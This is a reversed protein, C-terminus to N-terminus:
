SKRALWALGFGQNPILKDLRFELTSVTQRLTELSHREDLHYELRILRIKRFTDPDQFIDWEAGECDLKLLDLDNGLKSVADALSVITVKGNQTQRTQALRSEGVDAMVAFGAKSGVGASFPIAGVPALNKALHPYIRPNPEYAHITAFPLYHAAMLSFLGCNAGVDLVSKIDSGLERLGYDDDLVLNIFDAGLGAEDPASFPLVRRGWRIDAPMRFASTGSFPVGFGRARNWRKVLLCARRSFSHLPM